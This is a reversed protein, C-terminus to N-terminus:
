DGEKTLWKLDVEFEKAIKELLDSKITVLGELIARSQHRPVNFLQSFILIREKMAQPVDAKDLLSHLRMLMARKNSMMKIEQQMKRFPQAIM